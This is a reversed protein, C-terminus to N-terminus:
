RRPLRERGQVAVYAGSAGSESTWPAASFSAQVPLRPLRLSPPLLAAHGTDRGRPSRLLLAGTLGAGAGILSAAAATAGSDADYAFVVAGLAGLAGGFALGGNVRAVTGWGPEAGAALALGAGVLAIDGTGLSIALNTRGDVGAAVGTLAGLGSGWGATTFLLTTEAPTLEAFPASALTLATGAGFLSLGAGVGRRESTPSVYATWGVGQWATWTEAGAMWLVDDSTAVYRPALVAGTVQGAVSGLLMPGVVGAASGDSPGILMPLGAGLANGTGALATQLLFSRADPEGIAALGYSGLYGLGLGLRAGAWTYYASNDVGLLTPTWLGIWTGQGLGLLTSGVKPAAVDAVGTGLALAGFATTSLVSVPARRQRDEYLDRDLLDNLGTGFIMGAALGGDAQIMDEADPARPLLLLGAGLGAMSGLVGAARIRRDEADVGPPLFGRGAQYGLYAGYGTTSAAFVIGDSTVDARQAILIGSLGGVAGGLLAGSVVPATEGDSVALGTAGGVYAGYAGSFAVTFGKGTERREEETDGFTVGSLGGFASREGDAPQRVTPARTTPRRGTSPTPAAEPAAEPTAEPTAEPAVEPAAEPTAEGEAPAEHEGADDGADGGGQDDEAKADPLGLLSLGLVTLLGQLRTMGAGRTPTDLWGRRVGGVSRWPVPVSHRSWTYELRRM